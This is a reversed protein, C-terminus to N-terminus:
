GRSVGTLLPVGVVKILQRLADFRRLYGEDNGYILEVHLSDILALYAEALLDVNQGVVPYASELSTQFRARIGALYEEFGSKVSQEITAPPYFAARLLFRLACSDSYRRQLNDIYREGPAQGNPPVAFQASVYDQESKLAHNLVATYLDDKSAFHAYLSAKKIGASVAIENLSAADYGRDAFHQLALQVIRGAAPTLTTTTM